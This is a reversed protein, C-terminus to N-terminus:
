SFGEGNGLGDKSTQVETIKDSHNRGGPISMGGYGNILLGVVRDLALEHENIGGCIPLEKEKSVRYYEYIILQRTTDTQSYVESGM